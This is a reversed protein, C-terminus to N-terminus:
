FMFKVVAKLPPFVTINICLKYTRNQRHAVMPQKLFNVDYEQVGGETGGGGHVYACMCASM